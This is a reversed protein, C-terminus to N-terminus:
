ARQTNSLVKSNTTGLSHQATGREHHRLGVSVSASGEMVLSVTTAAEATVIEHDRTQPRRAVFDAPTLLGPHACPPLQSGRLGLGLQYVSTNKAFGV